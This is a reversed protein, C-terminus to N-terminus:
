EVRVKQQKILKDEGYMTIIYIGPNSVPLTTNGTVNTHYITRGQMDNVILTSPTDTEIILNRDRVYIQYATEIPFIGSPIGNFDAKVSLDGQITYERPNETSGDWWRTFSSGEAPVATLRIKSGYVFGDEESRLNNLEELTVQGYATPTPLLVKYLGHQAINVSFVVNSNINPYIYENSTKPQLTQSNAKVTPASYDSDYDVKLTFTEGEKVSSYGSPSTIAGAITPVYVQYIANSQVPTTALPNSTSSSSNHRFEANIVLPSDDEITYVAGSSINNEMGYNKCVSLKHLYYANYPSASIILQDGRNIHSGSSLSTGTTKNKVTIIGNTSGFLVLQSNDISLTVTQASITNYNRSDDPIFQITYTTGSQVLQNGNLWQFTGGINAQGGYIPVQNLRLGNPVQTIAQPKEPLTPNASNITYSTKVTISDKGKAAPYFVSLEYNGANIPIVFNGTDDKYRIKKATNYDPRNNTGTPFFFGPMLVVSHIRATGTYGYSSADKITLSWEPLKETTITELEVFLNYDKQVLIDKTENELLIDESQTNNIKNIIKKVKYGKPVIPISLKAITGTAVKEGNTIEKEGNLLLPIAGNTTNFKLTYHPLQNGIPVWCYAKQYNSSKPTFEVKALCSNSSTEVVALDCTILTNNYYATGGSISYLDGNKIIQPLSKIRIPAPEIILKTEKTVFGIYKDTERFIQVNYEGANTPPTASYEGTGSKYNIIIDALGYPHTEFNSYNLASGTYTLTQSALTSIVTNIKTKSAKSLSVKIDEKATFSYFGDIGLECKNGNIILIYINDYSYTKPQITIQTNYPILSGLTIEEATDFNSKGGKKIIPTESGSSPKLHIVQIERSIFSVSISTVKESMRHAIVNNIPAGILQDNVKVENLIYSESVPQGVIEIEAGYPVSTGSSITKGNYRVIFTGNQTGATTFLVKLGNGTFVPTVVVKSTTGTVTFKAKNKDATDYQINNGGQVQISSLEHDTAPLAIVSIVEGKIVSAFGEEIETETIETGNEHYLQISGNTSSGIEIRYEDQAYGNIGCIFLTFLIYLISRKM